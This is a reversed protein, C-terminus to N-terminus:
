PSVVRIRRRTPARLFESLSRGPVETFRAMGVGFYLLTVTGVLAPKGGNTEPLDSKLSLWGCPGTPEHSKSM